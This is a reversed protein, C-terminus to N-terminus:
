RRTATQEALAVFESLTTQGRDSDYWAQRQEFQKASEPNTLMSQFMRQLVAPREVWAGVDVDDRLLVITPTVARGDPAPHRKMLWEGHTRDVIRVNVHARSTLAAIYPLTNASDPCWDEAVVLIRLGKSVRKLRDVLSAAAAAEAANKVWIQRQATVGRIFQNFTLGREFLGVVDRPGTPALQIAIVVLTWFVANM